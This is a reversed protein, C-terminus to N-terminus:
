RRPRRRAPVYRRAHPLRTREPAPAEQERQLEDARARMSAAMRRTIWRPGRFRREFEDAGFRWCDPHDTGSMSVTFTQGTSFGLTQAASRLLVAARAAVNASDGELSVRLFRPVDVNGPNEEVQCESAGAGLTLAALAFSEHSWGTDPLGFEVRRWGGDRGTLALQLFGSAGNAEFVMCSGPAYQLLLRNVWAPMKGVTVSTRVREGRRRERAAGLVVVAVVAAFLGLIWLLVYM